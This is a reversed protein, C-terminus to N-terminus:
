RPALFFALLVRALLRRHRESWTILRGLEEGLM